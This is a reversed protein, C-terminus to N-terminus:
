SLAFSIQTTITAAITTILEYNYFSPTPYYYDEGHNTAPITIFLYLSSSSTTIFTTITKLIIEFSAVM